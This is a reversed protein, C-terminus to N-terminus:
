SITCPEVLIRKPTPAEIIVANTGNDKDRKRLVFLYTAQFLNIDKFSTHSLFVHRRPFPLLKDVVADSDVQFHAAQGKSAAEHDGGVVIISM